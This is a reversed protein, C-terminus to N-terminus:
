SCCCCCILLVYAVLVRLREQLGVGEVVGRGHALVALVAVGMIIIMM